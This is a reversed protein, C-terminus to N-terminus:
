FMIGINLEVFNPKGSHQYTSNVVNDGKLANTFGNNFNVGLILATNKDFPYEIGGGLIMSAKFLRTYKDIDAYPESILNVGDKYEDKGKSNIRVGFGLGIQGYYRFLGMENTKLKLVAPFELYRIRYNRTLSVVDGSIIDPYSLKGGQYTFNFGTTFAYNKAFYIETALGWSFGPKVGESNYTKEDTKLWSISPAAKIGLVFARYQAQSIKPLSITALILLAFFTTRIKM